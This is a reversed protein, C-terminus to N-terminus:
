VFEKIVELFKQRSFSEGINASKWQDLRRRWQGTNSMFEFVQRDTMQSLQVPYDLIHRYKEYSKATYIWERPTENYQNFFITPKGIAVSIYALTGAAIVIDHQQISKISNASKLVAEEFRVNSMKPDYMGCADFSKGYRVTVSTFLKALGLVRDLTKRNLDFSAPARLFDKGKTGMTHMPAFLLANRRTASSSTVSSLSFGCPEIRSKYGYDIMANKIEKTFVFNCSVPHEEHFGDWFYWSNASHPYVFIPKKKKYFDDIVPIYIEQELDYLLFDASDPDGSRIYGATNLANIFLNASDRREFMYYRKTRNHKNPISTRRAINKASFRKLLESNKTEDM